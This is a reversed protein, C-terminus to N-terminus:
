RLWWGAADALVHAFAPATWSAAMVRLTGFLLGVAVDLPVVRWGYLPVHLAAFAAACVLVATTEGGRRQVLDFMTGRLFAEESIAVITTVVMWPLFEATSRGAVSALGSRLVAVAALGIAAATGSLLSVSLRGPASLGGALCLAALCGSFVLAGAVSQPGTAGSVVSRLAAACGLGGLLVLVQLHPRPALQEASTASM